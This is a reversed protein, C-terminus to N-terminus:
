FDIQEAGKKSAVLMDAEFAHTRTLANGVNVVEQFLAAM